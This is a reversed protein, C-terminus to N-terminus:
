PGREDGLTIGTQFALDNIPLQGGFVVEKDEFDDFAHISGARFMRPRNMVLALARKHHRAPRNM